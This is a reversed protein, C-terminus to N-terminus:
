AAIPPARALFGRAQAALHWAAHMFSRNAARPVPVTALLSEVTADAHSMQDFADCDHGQEHGAFLAEIWGRGSGRSLTQLEPAGVSAFLRPLEHKLYAGREAHVVRHALGLTQVALLTLIM